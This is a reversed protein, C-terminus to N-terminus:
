PAASTPAFALALRLRRLLGFATGPCPWARPSLRRAPLPFISGFPLAAAGSFASAGGLSPALPRCPRATARPRGCTRAGARAGRRPGSPSIRAGAIQQERRPGARRPSGTGRGPAARGGLVGDALLRDGLDHGLPCRGLVVAVAVLDRPDQGSGSRNSRPLTSGAIGGRGLRASRGPLPPCCSRPPASSPAKRRPRSRPCM